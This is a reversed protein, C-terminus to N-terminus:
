YLNQISKAHQKSTKRSRNRELVTAFNKMQKWSYLNYGDTLREKLENASCVYKSKVGNLNANIFVVISNFAAYPLIQKLHEIHASNQKVPNYFKREGLRNKQKWYNDNDKGYVCSGAYNKTEIVFIGYANIVIHDIQTSGVATDTDLIYDNFVIQVGDETNGILEAIFDEGDKGKKDIIEQRERQKKSLEKLARIIYVLVIVALVFVLILLMLKM